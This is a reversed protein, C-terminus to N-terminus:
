REIPEPPRLGAPLEGAVEPVRVTLEPAVLPMMDVLRGDDDSGATERVGVVTGAAAPQVLTVAWSTDEGSELEIDATRGASIDVVQEDLLTGDGDLRTVTVRGGMDGVATLLLRSTLASTDRSLVAATPSAPLPETAATYAVDPLEDSATSVVRVAATIEEDSVLEIAAPSDGIADGIPVSVAAGAPVTVIDHDLPRFPGDVGLVRVNVIADTDGPALLHLTREGHGPVGPVVVSTAPAAAAPIMSIGRPQGDASERFDVAATVRGQSARVRVGLQAADPALADLLLVDQSRPPLSIDKMGVAEVPGADDWLAVSVLAPTSSANTLILRGRQGEEASAGVFWHERAPTTCAATVLGRLDPGQALMYQEAVVGPAMAGEARVAFAAPNNREVARSAPDGREAMSMFPDPEDDPGALRRVVIPDEAEDDTEGEPPEWDPEEVGELALVGVRSSARAEGGVYPCVSTSRVVPEVQEPRDRVVDDPAGVFATGTVAAAVGLAVLLATGAANKATSTM